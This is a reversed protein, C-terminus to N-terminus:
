KSENEDSEKIKKVLYECLDDIDVINNCLVIDGIFREVITKYSAYGQEKEYNGMKESKLLGIREM